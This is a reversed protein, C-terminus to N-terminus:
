VELEVRLQAIQEDMTFPIREPTRTVLAARPFRTLLALVAEQVEVRALAQGLCFHAGHGFSAHPRAERTIEFRDPDAFREPDRNAAARWIFVSDGPALRLGFAEIPEAAVRRGVRFPPYLRLCEEVAARVREPEARVLAAQEPHALLLFLSNAIAARTSGVAGGLINVLLARFDAPDIADSQAGQAVLESLADEGPQATCRAILKEVYRSLAVISAEARARIAPTMAASFGEETGVLFEALAERDAGPIGLFHCIGFLPLERAYDAVVDIEGRAALEASRRDAHARFDSRLRATQRPTFLRGIFSRLRVHEPGDLAALTRKRWAYFPGDCIGLAELNAVGPNRFRPDAHALEVDDARLLVPEGAHTRATRGRARAERVLPAPDTWFRPDRLDLILEGM